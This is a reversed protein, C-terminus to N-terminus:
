LTKEMRLHILAFCHGPRQLRAPASRKVVNM